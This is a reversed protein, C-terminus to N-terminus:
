LFNNKFSFRELGLRQNVLVRFPIQHSTILAALFRKLDQKPPPSFVLRVRAPLQPFPLSSRAAAPIARHLRAVALVM